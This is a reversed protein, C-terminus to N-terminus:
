KTMRVSWPRSLQLSHRHAVPQSHYTESEPDVNVKYLSEVKVAIRERLIPLGAMPAYQNHGNRLAREVEHQLLQDPNFDPFGQSLNIADHERALASM